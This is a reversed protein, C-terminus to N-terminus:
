GGFLGAIMWLLAKSFSLKEVSEAAYINLVGINEGELKIKIKGIIDGKRVPAKIMDPIDFELEPEAKGKRILFSGSESEIMLEKHTGKEINPLKCESLDPDIKFSRYNAFGFDLLKRASTFRENNNATGMVVAVLELGGREATASLCCGASSTTGTKLGTAGSYFRVLKNTNVLETEGNRLTDMWVTSYKRIRKHKMLEASMIAIDRASTYHGEADLGSCNKFSTNNMGLVSAKKNMEEVFTEESGSVAEALATMADNASAIVAAKLLDDVTMVEGPELWIQSGGMSSAHESATVETAEALKGSDIAEMVLLLSMVKTISAPALKEDANQECLVNGGAIDMLIYSKATIQLNTAEGANAAVAAAKDYGEIPDYLDASVSESAIQREVSDAHVSVSMSIIFCFVLIGAVFKKM